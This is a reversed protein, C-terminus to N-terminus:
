CPYYKTVGPEVSRNALQNVDAVPMDVGSGTWSRFDMIGVNLTSYQQSLLTSFASKVVDLRTTPGFENWKYMPNM